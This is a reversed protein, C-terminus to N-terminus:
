IAIELPKGIQFKTQTQFHNLIKQVLALFTIVIIAFLNKM